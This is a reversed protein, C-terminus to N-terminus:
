NKEVRWAEVAKPTSVVLAPRGDIVMSVIGTLAEGYNFHDIPKGDASLLHISGDAGPLLWQGPSGAFLSGAVIREIAPSQYEGKPLPYSWLEEGQLGVGVAVNGGSETLHLGAVKRKGHETLTPAKRDLLDHSQTDEGLRDGKGQADLAALSGSDDTCLLNRRNRQDAGIVALAFRHVLSPRGDQEDM